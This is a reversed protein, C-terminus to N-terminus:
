GGLFGVVAPPPDTNGQRQRWGPTHDDLYTEIARLRDEISSKRAPRIVGFSSARIGSVVNVSVEFLKAVAADSHGDNYAYIGPEPCTGVSKLHEYIKVKVKLNAKAM